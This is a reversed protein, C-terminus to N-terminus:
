LVVRGHNERVVEGTQGHRIEKEIRWVQKLHSWELDGELEATRYLHYRM